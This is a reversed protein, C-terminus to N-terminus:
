AKVVAYKPFESSLRLIDVMETLARELEAKAKGVVDISDDSGRLIQDDTLYIGKFTNHGGLASLVPNLAEDISSLHAMASASAIPLIVKGAFINQPLLDLFAKLIGTYAAKYIPTSIIIGEAAQIQAIADKLAPHKLQAYVLVEPPLNRITLIDISLHETELYKKAYELIWRSRSPHSPSGAIAVIKSM